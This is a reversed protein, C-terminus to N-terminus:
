FKSSHRRPFFFPPIRLILLVHRFWPARFSTLFIVSFFSLFIDRKGLCLVLYKWLSVMQKQCGPGWATGRRGWAKRQPMLALSDRDGTLPWGLVNGKKGLIFIDVKLACLILQWSFLLVILTIWTTNFVSFGYVKSSTNIHKPFPYTTFHSPERLQNYQLYRKKQLLSAFLNPYHLSINKPQSTHTHMPM